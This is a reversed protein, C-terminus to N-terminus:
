IDKTTEVDNQNVKNDLSASDDREATEIGNLKEVNENGGNIQEEVTDSVSAPTEEVHSQVDVKPKVDQIVESKTSGVVANVVNDEETKSGVDLETEVKEKIPSIKGAVTMKSTASTTAVSIPSTGRSQLGSECKVSPTEPLKTPPKLGKNTPIFFIQGTMPDQALKFGGPPTFPLRTTPDVGQATSPSGYQPLLAPQLLSQAGAGTYFSPILSPRIDASDSSGPPWQPASTTSGGTVILNSSLDATLSSSSSRSTPTLLEKQDRHHETRDRHSGHDHSQDRSGRRSSVGSRSHEWDVRGNDKETKTQQRQRAVAIGVPISGSGSTTLVDEPKKGDSSRSERKIPRKEEQKKVIPTARATSKPTNSTGTTTTTSIITAAKSVSSEPKSAKTSLDVVGDSGASHPIPLPPSNLYWNTEALRKRQEEAMLRPSLGEYPSLYGHAALAHSQGMQYLLHRADLPLATPVVTKSGPSFGTYSTELFKASGPPKGPDQAIDRYPMHPTSPSAHNSGPGLHGGTAISLPKLERGAKADLKSDTIRTRRTAGRQEGPHLLVDGPVPADAPNFCWENNCRVVFQLMSAVVSYFYEDEFQM